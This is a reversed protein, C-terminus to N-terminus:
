LINERLGMYYGAICLFPHIILVILISILMIQLDIYKLLYFVSTTLIIYDGHDVVPLYQGRPINLRRKIFSGIAHGFFVCISLLIPHFSGPIFWWMVIGMLLSLILGGWTTSTGIIQKGSKFKLDFDFHVDYKEFHYRRKIEWFINLFTNIFICPLIITLCDLLINNLNM